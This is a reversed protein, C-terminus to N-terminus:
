TLRTTHHVAATGDYLVTGAADSYALGSYLLAGADDYVNVTGDAPNLVHKNTIAASVRAMSAELTDTALVIAHSNTATYEDVLQGDDVLFELSGRIYKTVGSETYTYTMFAQYRGDAFLNIDVEKKYKGQMAVTASDIESMSTTSSGWGSAKFTLDNWDMLFSGPTTRLALSITKGTLAAGNSDYLEFVIEQVNAQLNFSYASSGGLIFGGTSVHSRSSGVVATGGLIFGGTATHAATVAGNAVFASDGGLVFGGAAIYGATRAIAASGGAIIGGTATYVKGKTYASIGGLVLGGTATHSSSQSAVGATVGGVTGTITNASGSNFSSAAVLYQFDINEHLTLSVTVGVQVSYAPDSYTALYLTGYTGVSTDRWVKIWTPASFAINTITYGSDYVAGSYERLKIRYNGPSSYNVIVAHLDATGNSGQVTNSLMLCGMAAGTSSMATVNVVGQLIYNGAYAGAGGGKYVYADINAAMTSISICNAFVTIDASLDTETFVTLDLGAVEAVPTTINEVLASVYTNVGTNYSAASYFEDYAASATRALM